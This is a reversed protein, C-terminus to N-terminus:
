IKTTNEEGVKQRHAEALAAQIRNYPELLREQSLGNLLKEAIQSENMFDKHSTFGNPKGDYYVMPFEVHKRANLFLLSRVIVLDPKTKLSKLLPIAVLESFIYTELASGYLMTQLPTPRIPSTLRFELPYTQLNTVLAGGRYVQRNDLNVIDLFAIIQPVAQNIEM